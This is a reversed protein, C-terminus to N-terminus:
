LHRNAVGDGVLSRGLVGAVDAAVLDVVHPVAAEVEPTLNDPGNMIDGIHVGYVVFEADHGLLRANIILYPIGMGHSTTSRLGSIGAADPDMRYISGPEDGIAIADLFIVHNAALVAPMLRMGALHGTEVVVEPDGDFLSRLRDAIAVGVGDDGMLTNGIGIVSVLAM